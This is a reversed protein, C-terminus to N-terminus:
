ARENHLGSALARCLLLCGEYLLNVTIGRQRGHKWANPIPCQGETGRPWPGLLSLSNGSQGYDSMGTANRAILWGLPVNSWDQWKSYLSGMFFQFNLFFRLFEEHFSNFGMIGPGHSNIRMRKITTTSKPPLFIGFIMPSTPLPILLKLFAMFDSSGM